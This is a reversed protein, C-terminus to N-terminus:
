KALLGIYKKKKKKHHNFPILIKKTKNMSGTTFERICKWTKKYFKIKNGYIIQNHHQIWLGMLDNLCPM